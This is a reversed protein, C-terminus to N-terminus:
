DQGSPPQAQDPSAAAGAGEQTVTPDGFRRRLTSVIAADARLNFPELPGRGSRRAFWFAWALMVLTIVQNPWANLEWQGSWELQLADSFPWLYPMPWTHGDPGRSGVLDGLLHLHVSVLVGVATLVRRKAVSAAAGALVVATLLNHGLIHHYESYWMIPDDSDATLIQPLWGFGDLDPLLAAIAVMARDRRAELPLANAVMWGSLFHSVPHM